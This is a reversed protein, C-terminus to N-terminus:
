KFLDDLKPKDTPKRPTASETPAATPTAAQPERMKEIAERLKSESDFMFQASTVVNDGTNLGSRIQV